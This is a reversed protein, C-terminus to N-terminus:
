LSKRHELLSVKDKAQVIISICERKGCHPQCNLTRACGVCLQENWKYIEIHESWKPCVACCCGGGVVCVFVCKIIDFAFNTCLSMIWHFPQIHVLLQNQTPIFTFSLVYVFVNLNFYVFIFLSFFNHILYLTHSLSVKARSARDISMVHLKFIHCKTFCFRLAFRKFQNVLVSLFLILIFSFSLLPKLKNIKQKKRKKKMNMSNVFTYVCTRM